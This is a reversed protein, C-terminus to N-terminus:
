GSGARESRVYVNADDAYRVFRHGRRDLEWDLEDLVINSLLPSLPSGQPVGEENRDCCRGAARDQGEAVTRDARAAASGRSAARAAVDTAPPLGSRLVEGSRPRGGVRLRRRSAAQGGRGGHPLQPGTQVRPEITSRRSSCRSSYRACRRVSWGTPWTRSGWGASGAARRRSRWGAPRALAIAGMWCSPPWSRALLRGSSLLEGVTQGDPGPAGKNSVVKVLAATLRSVVEEMTVPTVSEVNVIAEPM